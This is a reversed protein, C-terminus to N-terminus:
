GVVLITKSPLAVELGNKLKILYERGRNLEVVKLIKGTEGAHRGLIIEVLAGEKLPLIKEIKNTATNLLVSGGISFDEKLIFNQGDDLNMQVVKNRLIKKGIIKSTNYKAKDESIEELRYKKNVVELRYHKKTKEVSIVDYVQVPFNENKRIKNNVKIGGGLTIVRAEKRTKAIGWIDRLIFLVSIGKSTSHTPVALYREKKGKRPLPWAKPM